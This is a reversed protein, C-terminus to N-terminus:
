RDEFFTSNGRLFDATLMVNKGEPKIKLVKLYGDSFKLLLDSDVLVFDSNSEVNEIKEVEVLEFKKNKYYFFVGPWTSFAKIKGLVVARNDKSIFVEGDAKSIKGSYTSSAHDQDLPTLKDYNNIFKVISEGGLKGLKGLLSGYDDSQEVKISQVIWVPGADLKDTMTIVSIGAVEDLNLLTAQIPSAGRYKPLISAHVNVSVEKAQTLVENSLIVGYDAVVLFDFELNNDSIIKLIESSSEAKFCNLSNKMCFEGVVTSTLIRKRGVPKDKQTIVGVLNISSNSIIKKLIEEAFQGSGMYLINKM